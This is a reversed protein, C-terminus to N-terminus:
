IRGFLEQKKSRHIIIAKRAFLIGVILSAIAGIIRWNDLNALLFFDYAGHFITASVLGIINYLRKNEMKARGIWYGMLIAFTTHAPVATFMRMIAVSLGGSSVYMLNEIAAFGLSVMVAYVIGDYPEDFHDSKSIFQRLFIYKSFEESFGIFIFSTVAFQLNSGGFGFFTFASRELFIAPIVSVVGFLFTLILMRIPEKNLHDLHTIFWIIAIVPAIALALALM